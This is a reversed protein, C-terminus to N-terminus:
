LNKVVETFEQFFPIFKVPLYLTTIMIETISYYIWFKRIKEMPFQNYSIYALLHVSYWVAHPIQFFLFFDNASVVKEGIASSTLYSISVFGLILAIVPLQKWRIEREYILNVIYLLGFALISTIKYFAFILILPSYWKDRYKQFMFLSFAIWINTNFLTAWFYVMPSNGYFWWKQYKNDINKIILFFMTFTISLHIAFSIYLPLVMWFCLFYFYNLYFFDSQDIDVGSWFGNVNRYFIRFDHGFPTGMIIQAFISSYIGLLFSILLGISFIYIEKKSLGGEEKYNLTFDSQSKM